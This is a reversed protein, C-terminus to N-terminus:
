DIVASTCMTNLGCSGDGRYIWYYGQVGWSEGWSNKIIWYPEDGYLWSKKVGYGVILVGHDLNAPNCFIKWPHAVGGMYFQMMNANIGISIPGNAVLWAAIENEDKSIAVSGNLYVVAESKKFKCKDDAAEYPYQSETELGGLKMIQKYANSPLGGECGSDVTDCDVLEQESLSVLKGKKIKWQGEINGTTSFAWCSGCQGQNKVPTVAGKDRWDFAPPIEGKPIKAEKMEYLPKGWGPMRYYKKFEEETLDSFVTEGYKASGQEMDQMKRARVLNDKYIAFRKKYENKDTAYSKKHKEVFKQFSEDLNKDGESASPKPKTEIFMEEVVNSQDPKSIPKAPNSRECSMIKEKLGVCEHNELEQRKEWPVSYVVFRCQMELTDVPCLELSASKHADDNRCSRSVGVEAVMCFKQGAVVQVTADSVKTPMLRYLNNQMANFENMAFDLADLVEPDDPKREEIGGLLGDSGLCSPVLIAALFVVFLAM